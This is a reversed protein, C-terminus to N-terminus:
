AVKGAMMVQMFLVNDLEAQNHCGASIAVHNGEVQWQGLAIGQMDRVVWASTADDQETVKIGVIRLLRRGLAGLHAFYDFDMLEDRMEAALETAKEEVGWEFECRYLAIGSEDVFHWIKGGRWHRLQGLLHGQQDYVQYVQQLPSQLWLSRCWLRQSLPLSYVQNANFLSNLLLMLGFLIFLGIATALGAPLASFLHTKMAHQMVYYSALMALLAAGAESFGSTKRSLSFAQNNQSDILKYDASRNFILAKIDGYELRLEAQYISRLMADELGLQQRFFPQILKDKPSYIIDSHLGLQQLKQQTAVLKAQEASRRLVKRQPALLASAKSESISLEDVLAFKVEALERGKVLRGHSILLYECDM